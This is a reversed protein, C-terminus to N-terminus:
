WYITFVLFFYKKNQRSSTEKRSIQMTNIEKCEQLLERCVLPQKVHRSAAFQQYLQYPRSSLTQFWKMKDPSTKIHGFCLGVRKKCYDKVICCDNFFTM